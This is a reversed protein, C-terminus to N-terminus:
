GFTHAWVRERSKYPLFVQHPGARDKAQGDFASLQRRENEPPRGPYAFRCQGSDDSLFQITGKVREASYARADLLHAFHDVFGLPLAKEVLGIGHQEDVFDVAEVFGLL